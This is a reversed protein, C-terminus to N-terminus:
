PLSERYILAYVVMRREAVEGDMCLFALAPRFGPLYWM